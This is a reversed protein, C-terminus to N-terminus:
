FIISKSKHYLVRPKPLASLVEKIKLKLNAKEKFLSWILLLNKHFFYFIILSKKPPPAFIELNNNFNEIGQMKDKSTLANYLM